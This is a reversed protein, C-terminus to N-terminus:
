NSKKSVPKPKKLSVPKTVEGRGNVDPEEVSEKPEVPEDAPKGPEDADPDVDAISEDAVPIDSPSSTSGLIDTQQPSDPTADKPEGVVDVETVAAPQDTTIFEGCGVLNGIAVALLLIGFITRM